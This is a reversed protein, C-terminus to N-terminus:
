TINIRWYEGGVCVASSYSLVCFNSCGKKSDCSIISVLYINM